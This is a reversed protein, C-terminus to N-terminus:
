SDYIQNLQSIKKQIEDKSESNIKGYQPPLFYCRKRDVRNIYVHRDNNRTISVALYDSM